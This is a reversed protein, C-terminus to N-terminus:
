RATSTSAQTAPTNQKREQEAIARRIAEDESMRNRGHDTLKDYREQVEASAMQVRAMYNGAVLNGADAIAADIAAECSDAKATFSKGIQEAVEETAIKEAQAYYHESIRQHGEEHATLKKPGNQPLWIVIELGITTSMKEVKVTASCGQGASGTQQDLVLASTLTKCSFNSETVAAEGPKLPPMEAPPNSRDFTRTTVKVPTVNVEVGETTAVAPSADGGPKVPTAAAPANAILILGITGANLLMRGAHM